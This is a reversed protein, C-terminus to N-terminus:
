QILIGKPVARTHLVQIGQRECSEAIRAKQEPDVLAILTEGQATECVKSGYVSKQTLLQMIEQTHQTSGAFFSKRIEWEQNFCRGIYKWNLHGARLEADLDHSVQAIQEVGRAMERDGSFLKSVIEWKKKGTERMRGSSLILLRKSVESIVDNPYPHLDIGGVKYLLCNLGGFLSALCDQTGVPTRSFSVEIDRIWDLMEWQWGQDVYQGFIRSLGRVLVSCLAASDCLGSEAPVDSSISIRFKQSPIESKQSFYQSVLMVPLRLLPSLRGLTESSIHNSFSFSEGRGACVEVNFHEAESVEFQASVFRDLALSIVKAHDVMCHVPWLDLMGGGLDIGVPAMVKFSEYNKV